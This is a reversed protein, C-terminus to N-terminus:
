RRLNLKQKKNGLEINIIYGRRLFFDVKKQTLITYFHTKTVNLLSM